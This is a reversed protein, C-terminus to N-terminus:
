VAHKKYWAEQQRWVGRLIAPNEFVAFHAERMRIDTLHPAVIDSITGCNMHDYCDLQVQTFRERDQGIAQYLLACTDYFVGRKPKSFPEIERPPPLPVMVPYILNAPPNFPTDPFNSRWAEIEQKIRAPNLYLFSGHMRPKSICNTFPDFFQPILRGAMPYDAYDFWECDKWFVMDTDLIIFPETETVLLQEIWKHHITPEITLCKSEGLKSEVM